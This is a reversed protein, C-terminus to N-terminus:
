PARKAPTPQDALGPISAIWGDPKTATLNAQGPSFTQGQSGRATMAGPGYYTEAALISRNPPSCFLACERSRGPSM